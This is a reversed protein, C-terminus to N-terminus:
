EKFSQSLLRQKIEEYAETASKQCEFYRVYFDESTVFAKIMWQGLDSPM